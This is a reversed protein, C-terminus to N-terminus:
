SDINRGYSHLPLKVMNKRVNNHQEHCCKSPHYSIKIFKWNINGQCLIIIMKM